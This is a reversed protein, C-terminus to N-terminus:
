RRSRGNDVLRGSSWASLHLPIMKTEIEVLGAASLLERLRVGVRVDKLNGLGQNYKLSWQRLAHEDTLSGNDSQANFYM